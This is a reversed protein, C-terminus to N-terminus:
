AFLSLTFGTGSTIGNKQNLTNLMDNPTAAIAATAGSILGVMPDATMNAAAKAALYRQAFKDVFAPDKFKDFKLKKTLEVVQREYDLIGFQVPLDLAGSVVEMLKSDSIVMPVTTASAITRRFYLAQQMGPIQKGQNAEFSNQAYSNAIQSLTNTNSFPSSGSSKWNGLATAFRFAAQNALGRALSGKAQPDQTLLKKLLATQPMRDSMGYAGLVVKLARFDKLLADPSNLKPAIKQLYAIDAKTVPDSKAFKGVRATEDWITALYMPISSLGSM